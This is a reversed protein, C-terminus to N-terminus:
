ARQERERSRKQTRGSTHKPSVQLEPKIMSDMAANKSLHDPHLATEEELHTKAGRHFRRYMYGREAAKRVSRNYEDEQPCRAKNKSNNTTRLRCLMVRRHNSLTLRPCCVCAEWKERALSVNVPATNEQSLIHQEGATYALPPMPSTAKAGKYKQVSAGIVM